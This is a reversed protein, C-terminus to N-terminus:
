EVMDVEGEVLLAEATRGKGLAQVLHAVIHGRHLIWFVEAIGELGNLLHHLLSPYHCAVVDTGTAQDGTQKLHAKGVGFAAQVDIQVVQTLIAVHHLGKKGLVGAHHYLHSGLM